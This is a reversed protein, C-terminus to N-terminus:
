SDEYEYEYEFEWNPMRAGPRGDYRTLRNGSRDYGHTLDVIPPRDPLGGTSGHQTYGGDVWAQRAM